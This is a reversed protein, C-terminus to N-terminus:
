EGVIRTATGGAIFIMAVANPEIVNSEVTFKKSLKESAKVTVFNANRKVLGLTRMSELNIIAGDEFAKELDELTVEDYVYRHPDKILKSIVLKEKFDKHLTKVDKLYVVKENADYYKQVVHEYGIKQMYTLGNDNYESVYDVNVHKDKLKRIADEVTVGRDKNEKVFGEQVALMDILELAVKVSRKSRIKIYTPQDQYKTSVDKVKYGLSILKEPDLNIFAKIFKSTIKLKVQLRINKGDKVKSQTLGTRSFNECSKTIRSKIKYTELANRITSYATKLEAGLTRLHLEYSKRVGVSKIEGIADETAVTENFPTQVDNEEIDFEKVMFIRVTIFCSCVVLPAFFLLVKLDKITNLAVATVIFCIASIIFLSLLLTDILVVKKSPLEYSIIFFFLGVIGLILAIFVYDEIEVTSMFTAIINTSELFSIGAIAFSCVAFVVGLNHNDFVRRFYKYFSPKVTSYDKVKKDSDFHTNYSLLGFIWLVVILGIVAINFALKQSNVHATIAEVFLTLDAFLLIFATADVLNCKKIIVRDKVLVILGLALLAVTLILFELANKNFHIKLYINAEELWVTSLIGVIGAVLVTVWHRKIFTKFYVSVNSNNVNKESSNDKIEVFNNSRIIFLVFVLALLLIIVAIKLGLYGSEGIIVYFISFLFGFLGIEIFSDTLTLNKGKVGYIAVTILLIIGISLSSTIVGNFIKNVSDLSKILNFKDVVYVFLTFIFAIVFNEIHDCSKLLNKAYHKIKKCNIGM